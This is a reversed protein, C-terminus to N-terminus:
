KISKKSNISENEPVAQCPRNCKDCLHYRYSEGVSNAPAGCCKSVIKM